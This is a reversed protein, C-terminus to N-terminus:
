KERPKYDASHKALVQDAIFIQDKNLRGQAVIGQGERFLDPLIGNYKVTVSNNTDTLTFIMTLDKGRHVSNKAVIGGMRFLIGPHVEGSVVQTPTYYLNINQRLAYLALGTAASIGFFIVLIITLRKKRLPHM